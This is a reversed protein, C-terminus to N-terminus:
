QAPLHPGINGGCYLKTEYVGPPSNVVENMIRRLSAKSMDAPIRQLFKGDSDRVRLFHETPRFKEMLASQLVTSGNYIDHGEHAPNKIDRSFHFAGDYEIHVPTGFYNQKMDCYRPLEPLYEGDEVVIRTSDELLSRFRLETKSKHDLSEHSTPISNLPLDFWMRAQMLAHDQGDKAHNLKRLQEDVREAFAKLGWDPRLIDFIALSRLLSRSEQYDNKDQNGSCEDRWALFLREDPVIGAEAHDAFIRTLEGCNLREDPGCLQLDMFRDTVSELMEASPYLRMERLGHLSAALEAKNMDPITEEFRDSWKQIFETDLEMGLKGSFRMIYAIHHHSAQSLLTTLRSVQPSVERRFFFGHKQRTRKDLSRINNYSTKLADLLQDTSQAKDIESLVSEECFGQRKKPAVPYSPSSNDADIAAIRQPMGTYPKRKGNKKRGSKGYKKPM